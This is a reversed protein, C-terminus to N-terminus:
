GRMIKGCAIKAGSNGSPQTTFDDAREHIVVTRGIIEDITFSNSLYASFAYGNSAFLSPMDGAHHPHSCNRPNYHMGTNFFPDADNGTCEDGSHIHIAFISNHCAEASTPLGSATTIVMIGYSTQYFSCNGLIEPYKASGKIVAYANPRRRLLYSLDIQRM